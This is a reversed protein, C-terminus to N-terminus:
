SPMCSTGGRLRLVASCLADCAKNPNHENAHGRIHHFRIHKFQDCLQCVHAWERPAHKGVKSAADRWYVYRNLKHAISQNDTFVDVRREEPVHEVVWRLGQEVGILEGVTPNKVNEYQNCFFALCTNYDRLVLTSAAVVDYRTGADSFIQLM